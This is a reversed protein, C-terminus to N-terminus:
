VLEPHLKEMRQIIDLYPPIELKTSFEKNKATELNVYSQIVPVSTYRTETIIRYQAVSPVRLFDLIQTLFSKM